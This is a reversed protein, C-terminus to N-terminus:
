HSILHLCWDHLIGKSHCNNRLSFLIGLLYSTQSHCSHGASSFIGHLCAARSQCECGAPGLTGTVLWKFQCTWLNQHIAWKGKREGQEGDIERGREYVFMEGVRLHCCCCTVGKAEVGCCPDWPCCPDWLQALASRGPTITCTWTHVCAPTTLWFSRGILIQGRCSGHKSWGSIFWWASTEDRSWNGLGRPVLM